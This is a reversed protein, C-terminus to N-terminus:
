RSSVNGIENADVSDTFRSALEVLSTGARATLFVAVQQIESNFELRTKGTPGVQLATVIDPQNDSSYRHSLKEPTASTTM